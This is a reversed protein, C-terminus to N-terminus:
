ISVPATGGDPTDNLVAFLPAAIDTARAAAQAATAEHPGPNLEGAPLKLPNFCSYDLGINKLCQATDVLTNRQATTV